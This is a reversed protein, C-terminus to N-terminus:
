LTMVPAVNECIFVNAYPDTRAAISEQTIDSLCM